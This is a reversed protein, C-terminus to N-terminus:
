HIWSHRNLKGICYMTNRLIIHVNVLSSAATGM